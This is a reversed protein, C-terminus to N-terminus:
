HNEVSQSEMMKLHRRIWWNKTMMMTIMTKIQNKKLKKMRFNRKNKSNKNKMNKTNKRQISMKRKKMSSRTTMSANMKATVELITM